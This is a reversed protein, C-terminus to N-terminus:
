YDKKKRMRELEKQVPINISEDPAYNLTPSRGDYNVSNLITKIAELRALHKNDSRVIHWPASRSNTRQLMEYKYKSIEDWMVQAQLDVESLKWHRLPDNMRREFRKLQEAKSVSFYLKVLIIDQRVLDHEFNVVDEMFTEYQEETCFGFVPEVMARNYWSRDFLVVEGGTPFKEIYRQLYWQHKQTDNPKGLAVVRYHKNNMYRTIRRIAGGKGSADRGEFLIIMKKKTEELYKQMKILEVQYPKIEELDYVKQVGEKLTIIGNVKQAYGDQLIDKQKKFEDVLGGLSMNKGDLTLRANMDCCYKDDKSVIESKVKKPASTSASPKKENLSTKYEAMKKNASEDDLGDLITFGLTKVYRKGNQQFRCVYQKGKAGVGEISLYLGAYKTKNFDNMNM